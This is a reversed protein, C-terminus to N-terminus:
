NSITTPSPEPRALPVDSEAAHDYAGPFGERHHTERDHVDQLTSDSTSTAVDISTALFELAMKNGAASDDQQALVLLLDRVGYLAFLQQQVTPAANHMTRM